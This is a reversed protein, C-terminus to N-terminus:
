TFPVSKLDEDFQSKGKMYRVENQNGDTMEASIKIILQVTLHM